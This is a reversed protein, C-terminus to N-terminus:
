TFFIFLNISQSTCVVDATLTMVFKLTIAGGFHLEVHKRSNKPNIFILIWDSYELICLAGITSVCNSYPPELIGATAAHVVLSFLMKHVEMEWYMHACGRWRGTRTHVGGGDGLVHTCVGEMEWYTHVGGGDGLVHTCVGEMEWYTHACGRWRGTRTHVGGGDGLVHTCVGEMEWYTHACGRWRGTRTHVGGGDGLVHTCVGEMEWYTHVGGGDGLVHTCVGETEWYTHACGRRRGTRTHVGGGDGLVHTHMHM